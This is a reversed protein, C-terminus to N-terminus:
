ERHGVALAGARAATVQRWIENMLVPVGDGTAGSIAYFRLGHARAAAALESLRSEGSGEAWRTPPLGSGVAVPTPDGDCALSSAGVCCFSVADIKNAGVVADKTELGHGFEAVEELLSELDAAPSRGSGESVDVLYVLVSTRSLHRLFRDGLGIGLHAGPLLGPVDALVFSRDDDLSVVGLHPALTTFPYDAVKPKAASVRRILTSKGANPFGVLGADALLRLELRLRFTEGPRGEEFRRPARDTATAFSANGRGGHGGRAVPVRVESGDLDALLEGSETYVLTGVPVPISLDSGSRGACGSGEGHRGREAKFRPQYRFRALTNQNFDAVLWISGGDGGEGGDPGGRPVYKERRFSVAGRGGDGAIVEIRAEDVFM